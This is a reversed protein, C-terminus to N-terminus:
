VAAAGAERLTEILRRVLRAATETTLDIGDTGDGIYVAVVPDADDAHLEILLEVGHADHPPVSRIAIGSVAVTAGRHRRAGGEDEADHDTVCWAPCTRWTVQTM